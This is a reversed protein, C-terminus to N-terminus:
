KGTNGIFDTNRKIEKLLEIVKDVQEDQETHLRIHNKSYKTYAEDKKDFFIGYVMMSIFLVTFIVACSAIVTWIKKMYNDMNDGKYIQATLFLIALVAIGVPFVIILKM